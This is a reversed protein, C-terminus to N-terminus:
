KNLMLIEGTEREKYTSDFHESHVVDEKVFKCYLKKFMDSVKYDYQAETSDSISDNNLDDKKM